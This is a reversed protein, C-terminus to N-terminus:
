HGTTAVSTDPPTAPPHTSPNGQVRLLTEHTDERGRAQRCSKSCHGKVGLCIEELHSLAMPRSPTGAVPEAERSFSAKNSHGSCGWSM